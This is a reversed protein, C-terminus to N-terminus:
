DIFLKAEEYWHVLTGRGSQTRSNIQSQTEAILIGSVDTTEAGEQQVKDRQLGSLGHEEACVNGM